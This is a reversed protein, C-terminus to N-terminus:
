HNTKESESEIRERRNFIYPRTDVILPRCEDMWWKSEIEQRLHSRKVPAIDIASDLFTITSIVTFDGFENVLQREDILIM